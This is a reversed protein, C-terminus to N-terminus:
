RVRRMVGGRAAPEEGIRDRDRDRVRGDPTRRPPRDAVTGILALAAGFATWRFGTGARLPLGRGVALTVAVVSAALLLALLLSVIRGARGPTAVGVLLVAALLAPGYLAVGVSRPAWAEITGGLLLDATAHISIASGPGHATLPGFLGVVVAVCGVVRLATAVARAGITM